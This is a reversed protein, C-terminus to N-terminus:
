GLGLCKLGAGVVRLILDMHANAEGFWHVSWLGLFEALGILSHVRKKGQIECVVSRPQMFLINALDPGHPILIFRLNNFIIANSEISSDPTTILTWAINRYVRKVKAYIKNLDLVRKGKERNMLAFFSPRIADLKLKRIIGSRLRLLCNPIGWDRFKITNGFDLTYILKAFIYEKPLLVIFRKHFGFRKMGEILFPRPLGIVVVHSTDIIARPFGLLPSLVNMLCHAYSDSWGWCVAVVRRFKGKFRKPTFRQMPGSSTFKTVFPKTSEKLVLPYHVFWNQYCVVRVVSKKWNEIQEHFSHNFVEVNEGIGIAYHM